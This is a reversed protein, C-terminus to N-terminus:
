EVEMSTVRFERGSILEIAPSKCKECNYLLNNIDMETETGCSRCKIKAPVKQINIKAKDAVTNEAIMEFFMQAFAPVIDSLAGVELNVAQVKKVNNKESYELVIELVNRMIGLEHM